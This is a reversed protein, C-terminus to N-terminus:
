CIKDVVWEVVPTEKFTEINEIISGEYNFSIEQIYKEKEGEKYCSIWSSSGDEFSGKQVKNFKGSNKLQECIIDILKDEM